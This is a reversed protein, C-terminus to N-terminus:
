IGYRGRTAEFNQKIEAESFVRNYLRVASMDGEAQSGTGSYRGMLTLYPYSASGSTLNGTDTSTFVNQSNVYFNRSDWGHTWIVHNWEDNKLVPNSNGKWAWPVSAYSIASFGNGLNGISIEFTNEVTIINNSTNGTSGSSSPRIWFEVTAHTYAFTGGNLDSRTFRFFDSAGDFNFSKTASSFEPGNFATATGGNGSVDSWITGSGPYSKVNAADLHLVLGNRVISTNYAIGM